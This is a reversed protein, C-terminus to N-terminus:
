HTCCHVNPRSLMPTFDRAVPHLPSNLCARVRTATRRLSLLEALAHRVNCACKAVARVAANSDLNFSSVMAWFLAVEKSSIIDDDGCPHLM